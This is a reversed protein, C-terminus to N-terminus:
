ASAQGSVAKLQRRREWVGTLAKRLEEDTINLYRQTTKIDSHGLILQVARIDVGDALLRCAGEHRLDHWHLDIRNSPNWHDGDTPPAGHSRRACGPPRHPEGAASATGDLPRKVPAKPPAIIQATRLTIQARKWGPDKSLRFIPYCTLPGTM